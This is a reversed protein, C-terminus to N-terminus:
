FITCNGNDTDQYHVMIQNDMEFLPNVTDKFIDLYEKDFKLYKTYIKDIISLKSNYKEFADTVLRPLYYVKQNYSTNSMFIEHTWVLIFTIGDISTGKNLMNSKILKNNKTIFGYGIVIPTELEYFKNFFSDYEPYKEKSYQCIINKVWMVSCNDLEHFIDSELTQPPVIWNQISENDKLDPYKEILKDILSRRQDEKIYIDFMKGINIKNNIIQSKIMEPMLDDIIQKCKEYCVQIFYNYKEVIISNVDISDIDIISPYKSFIDFLNKEIYIDISTKGTKKNKKINTFMFLIDPYKNTKVIYHKMEHNLEKGIFKWIILSDYDPVLGTIDVFKNVEIDGPLSTKIRSEVLEISDDLNCWEDDVNFILNEDVLDFSEVKNDNLYEEFNINKLAMIDCEKDENGENREM